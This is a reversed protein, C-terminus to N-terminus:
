LSLKIGVDQGNLEYNSVIFSSYFINYGVMGQFLTHDSSTIILM